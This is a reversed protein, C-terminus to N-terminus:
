GDAMLESYRPKRYTGINQQFYRSGIREDIQKGTENFRPSRELMQGAGSLRQVFVHSADFSYEM